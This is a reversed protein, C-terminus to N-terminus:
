WGEKGDIGVAAYGSDYVAGCAVKGYELRAGAQHIQGFFGPLEHGGVGLAARAHHLPEHKLHTANAGHHPLGIHKVTVERFFYWRSNVAVLAFALAQQAHEIAVQLLVFVQGAVVGYGVDGM